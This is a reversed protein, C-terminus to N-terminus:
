SLFFSSSYTMPLFAEKWNGRSFGSSRFFHFSKAPMSSSGPLCEAKHSSCKSSCNMLRWATRVVNIVLDVKVKQTLMASCFSSLYISHTPWLLRSLCTYNICKVGYTMVRYKLITRSHVFFRNRKYRVYM